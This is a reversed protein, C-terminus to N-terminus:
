KTHIALIRLIETQISSISQNANILYVNEEPGEAAYHIYADQVKQQFESDDHREEGYKERATLDDEINYLCITVDPLPLGTQTRICWDINLGKAVSYAVGSAIYRDLIIIENRALRDRIESVSEWRNATFMIHAMMPTLEEESLLYRNLLQGTVTSRNPFRMVSGNLQSTLLEVQTTKGVRDVGEIAILM